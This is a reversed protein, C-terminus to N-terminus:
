GGDAPRVRYGDYSTSTIATAGDAFRDLYDRTRMVAGDTSGDLERATTDYNHRDHAPVIFDTDIPRDGYVEREVFIAHQNVNPGGLAPVLDDSHSIIVARVSDPLPIQGAPSGFTILGTVNHHGNAALSHAVLGGQSYGTVVIESSSTAGSAALAQEVVRVSAVREGGVGRVNSTLDFPSRSGAPAFDNTGAVYVEFRDAAGARSIRDVRVRPGETSNEPGPIRALRDAFGSAASKVVMPPRNSIRVDTEGFLGFVGGIGAVLLASTNIGTLGVGQDGLVFSLGPPVRLLGNTFDDANMVAARILAITVPDSLVERHQELWSRAGATVTERGGPIGAVVKTAAAVVGLLPLGALVAVPALAGMTWATAGAIGDIAFRGVAEAGAYGNAAARVATGLRFARHSAEDLLLVATDIGAEVDFAAAPAEAAALQPGSVWGDATVLIDRSATAERAVDDLWGAIQLLEDTSVSVSGGTTITLDDAM